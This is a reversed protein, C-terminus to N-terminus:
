TYGGNTQELISVEEYGNLNQIGHRVGPTFVGKVKDEMNQMINEPTVETTSYVDGHLVPEYKRRSDRTHYRVDYIRDPEAHPVRM